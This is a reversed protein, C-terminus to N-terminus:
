KLKRIVTLWLLYIEKRPADCQLQELKQKPALLNTKKHCIFFQNLKNYATDNTMDCYEILASTEYPDLRLNQPEMEKRVAEFSAPYLVSLHKIILHAMIMEDHHTDCKKNDSM